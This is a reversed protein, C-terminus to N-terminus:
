VEKHKVEQRKRWKNGEPLRGSMRWCASTGRTRWSCHWSQNGSYVMVELMSHAPNGSPPTSVHWTVKWELGSTVISHKLHHWIYSCIELTDWPSEPPGRIHRSSPCQVAIPSDWACAGVRTHADSHWTIQSTESLHPTTQSQSHAEASVRPRRGHRQRWM